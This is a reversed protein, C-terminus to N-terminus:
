WAIETIQLKSVVKYTVTGGGTFTAGTFTLRLSGTANSYTIDAFAMSIDNATGLTTVNSISGVGGVVKYFFSDNRTKMDGVSVGNATGSISTVVSIWQLFVNWGRNSGVPTILNTSGTGDLSLISTGATLISPNTRATLNSNQADGITSFIGNANSVQGYLYACSGFGLTSSYAGSATNCRGGGAFSYAGSACNNVGCRVTSNCGTDLIEIPQTYVIPSYSLLQGGGNSCIACGSTLSSVCANTTRLIPTCVSTTGCLLPSTICTAADSIGCSCFNNSYFTCANCANINCGFAGSFAASANNNYGGLVAACATACNGFGGGVFSYNGNALNCQGGGNFAYAGLASNDVGCRYTSCFGGDVLMVNAGDASNITVVGVGSSPSLTIGTGAILQLVHSGGGGTFGSLYSM